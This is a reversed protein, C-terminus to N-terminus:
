LLQILWIISLGSLNEHEWFIRSLCSGGTNILLAVQKNAVDVYELPEPIRIPPSPIPESPQPIHVLATVTRILPQVLALEVTEMFVGQTEAEFKASSPVGPAEAEAVPSTHSVWQRKSTQGKKAGKRQGRAAM